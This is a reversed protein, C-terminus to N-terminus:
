KVKELKIGLLKAAARIDEIPVLELDNRFSYANVICFFSKREVEERQAKEYAERSEWIQNIERDRYTTGKGTKGNFQEEWGKENATTAYKTGVKAVTLNEFTVTADSYGGRRVRVVKQGITFRKSSM